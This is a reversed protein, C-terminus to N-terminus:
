GNEKVLAKVAAELTKFQRRSKTLVFPRANYNRYDQTFKQFTIQAPEGYPVRDVYYTVDGGGVRVKVMSTKGANDPKTSLKIRNTM